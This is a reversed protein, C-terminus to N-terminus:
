AKGAVKRWEYVTDKTIGTAIASEELYAGARMGGIIRDAVTIPNGENDTGVPTDINSPRGAM